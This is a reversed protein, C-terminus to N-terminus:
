AFLEVVIVTVAVGEADILGAVTDIQAPWLVVKVALPPPVYRHFVPAVVDAIVTLGAAVVV